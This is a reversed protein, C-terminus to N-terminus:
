SLEQVSSEAHVAFAPRAVQSVNTPCAGGVLGEAFLWRLVEPLAHTPLDATEVADGLTSGAHLAAIFRFEVQPVAHLAVGSPTRHLIVHGPGAALDVAVAAAGADSQNVKWVDLVPATAAVLRVSPVLRIRLMVLSEPDLGELSAASAPPMDAAVAADAVAWELAALESLWRYPTDALHDALFAAFPRGTEHLDGARSPYASRFHHVLQRFYDDGVRRRVVPFTLQLAQEFLARVNNRYV